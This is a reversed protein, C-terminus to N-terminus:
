RTPATAEQLRRLPDESAVSEILPFLTREEFRIHQELAHALERMQAASVDGADLEGNLRGVLAHLRQHELLARVLLETAPGDADVLLPFLQEEEDRFHQRTDRDFFSLFAAAADRREPGDGEAAKRLRRSHVLGHHHDHSLPILAPHPM